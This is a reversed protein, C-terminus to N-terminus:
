LKPTGKVESKRSEDSLMGGERFQPSALDSRNIERLESDRRKFKEEFEKKEQL